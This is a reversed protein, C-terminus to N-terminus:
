AFTQWSFYSLLHFEHQLMWKSRKEGEKKKKERDREIEREREKKRRLLFSDVTMLLM